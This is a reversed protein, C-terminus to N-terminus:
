RRGDLPRLVIPEALEAPEAPLTVELLEVDGTPEVLAFPLRAPIAIADAERLTHVTPVASAAPTADDPSGYIQLGVEGQLVFLFLLEGHHAVPALARPASSAPRLVRVGALGDTAEGIGTDRADFGPLWSPQWTASEADHRVFRQGGFDRDPRVETTPLALEHDLLTIHEAPCSLEVVQLRPSAELVRHRIGPPQLVCDGARLV